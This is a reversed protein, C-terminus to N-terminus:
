LPRFRGAGDDDICRVRIEVVHEAAAFRDAVADADAAFAEGPGAHPRDLALRLPRIPVRRSLYKRALRIQRAHGGAAWAIREARARHVDGSCLIANVAGIRRSWRCAPKSRSCGVSWHLRSRDRYDRSPRPWLQRAAASTPQPVHADSTPSATRHTAAPWGQAPSM